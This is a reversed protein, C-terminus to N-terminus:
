DISELFWKYSMKLGDELKTKPEWGLSKIYSSDLLKRPNGDPKTKDFVLEGKFEILQKILTALEKISIEENSGVNITTNEVRKIM